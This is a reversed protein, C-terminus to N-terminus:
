QVGGVRRRSTLFRDLCDVNGEENNRQHSNKLILQGVVTKTRPGENPPSWAKICEPIDHEASLHQLPKWGDPHPHAEGVHARHWLLLKLVNVDGELARSILPTYEEDDM